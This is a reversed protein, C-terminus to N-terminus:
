SFCSIDRPASSGRALLTKAESQTRAPSVTSQDVHDLLFDRFQLIKRCGVLKCQRDLEPVLQGGLRVFNRDSLLLEVFEVSTKLFIALIRILDDGPFFNLCPDKGAPM